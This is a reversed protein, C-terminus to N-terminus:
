TVTHALLIESESTRVKFSIMPEMPVPFRGLFYTLHQRLSAKVAGLMTKLYNCPFVNAHGHSCPIELKFYTIWPPSELGNQVPHTFVFYNSPFPDKKLKLRIAHVPLNGNLIATM